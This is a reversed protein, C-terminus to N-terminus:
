DNKVYMRLFIQHVFNFTIKNMLQDEVKITRFSLLIVEIRFENFKIANKQM